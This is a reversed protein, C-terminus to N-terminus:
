LCIHFNNQFQFSDVGSIMKLLDICCFLHRKKSFELLTFHYGDEQVENLTFTFCNNQESRVTNKM